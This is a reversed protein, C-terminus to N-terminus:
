KRYAKLFELFGADVKHGLTVARDCYEIALSYNKENLYIVALNNYTAAHNPNIELAKQCSTIAEKNKGIYAYMAALNSYLDANNPNIKIAKKYSAIAEEYEGRAGYLNGLNVYTNTNNPSIKIAKKYANIAEEHKGRVRYTNALNSYANAENPNIEIAKKYAVIAEESKGLTAYINGLNTYAEAAYPNLEIMKKFTSIAEENKNALVYAVGLSNYIYAENPNIEIAKKYAAIAEEYNGINNYLNGLNLYATADSPNLEIAKKYAAIAEKDGGTNRYLNNLNDYAAVDNPNIEIAKKYSSIAEESKGLTAYINGLNTYAEAAYPNLEIMKKFTSIAEENKNALVYTVGLSNYIYADNPKIEIAKKYAAIAEQYNGINNYLNGLNYYDKKFRPDMEIAKNYLAIAEETRGIKSYALGLNAFMRASNPAYKLTREYFVIPDKWYDNQKITLYSYFILLCMVIFISFRQFEKRQYLSSLAKALILFFGLSPLYLWHEAMYANIPYINSFPLLAIFFWFISFSILRNKNRKRAAYILFFVLIFFGIILKPDTPRVWLLGYEMHLHLPLLLIRVYDTIAVFFESLRQFLTLHFPYPVNTLLSKLVTLRLLIYIFTISLISFFEKFKVKQKFSFHYLLLLIPLILTNERALLALTYSSLTLIYLKTKHFHLQEIYFIFALLMFLFALPDARGSIYSVAETHIPHVIFLASALFSLLKDEFVLNIFWYIALAVLIHLIINTLHYGLVDLKWLSYDIMYTIMLLPRYFSYKGQAGAGIDESFINTLHSWNKIYINYKVLADDDWIFKGNLSNSYIVLGLLIILILSTVILHKNLTHKIVKMYEM